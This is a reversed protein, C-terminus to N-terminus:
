AMPWFCKACVLGDGKPTGCSSCTKPGEELYHHTRCGPECESTPKTKCLIAKIDCVVCKEFGHACSLGSVLDEVTKVKLLAADRERILKEDVMEKIRGENRSLLGDLREVEALLRVIQRDALREVESDTARATKLEGIEDKLKANEAMLCNAWHRRHKDCWMQEPWERCEM